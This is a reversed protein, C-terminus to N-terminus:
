CVHSQLQMCEIPQRTLFLLDNCGVLRQSLVCRCREVDTGNCGLEGEGRRGGGLINQIESSPKGLLNKFVNNMADAFTSPAITLGM